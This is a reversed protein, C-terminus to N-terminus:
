GWAGSETEGVAGSAEAGSVVGVCVLEEGFSDQHEEFSVRM